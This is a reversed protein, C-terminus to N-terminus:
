VFGEAVNLFWAFFNSWFHFWNSELHTIINEFNGWFLIEVFTVLAFAEENYM